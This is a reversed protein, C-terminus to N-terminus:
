RRCRAPSLDQESVDDRLELAPESAEIVEDGMARLLYM